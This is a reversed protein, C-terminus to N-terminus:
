SFKLCGIRQHILSDEKRAVTQNQAPDWKWCQMRCTEPHPQTYTGFHPGSLSNVGVLIDKPM